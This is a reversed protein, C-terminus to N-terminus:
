SPATVTRRARGHRGVLEALEDHSPAPTSPLSWGRAQVRRVDAVLEPDDLVGAPQVLANQLRTFRQWVDRDAFSAVYAEGNTVRDAGLAPAGFGVSEAEEDPRWRALRSADQEASDAVWPVLEDEVVQQLAAALDDGDLGHREVQEAVRHAHHLALSTGRTHAPNSTAAADGVAAYGALGPEGASRVRRVLNQMGTMSRVDSTPTSRDSAVWPALLPISEVAASFAEPTGLRRLDRDEPLTGFTVSFSGLDGPFVLCSYRDFSAGTTYGRNLGGGTAGPLLQYFRTLYTIGCSSSTEEVEVDDVAGLWGPVPTRRGCADVVLAADLTRGDALEVGVVRPRAGSDDVVLGTAKTGAEFALGDALASRRLVGEFTTRRAALVILEDDDSRPERDEVEPPLRDALRIPDAGAALLAAFVDPAEALLVERALAVFAHSQAAQPTATRPSRREEETPEGDAPAGVLGEDQEVVVVPLGRRRLFLATALGSISGGLVVVPAGAASM